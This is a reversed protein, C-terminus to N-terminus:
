EASANPDWVWQAGDVHSAKGHTVDVWAGTPGPPENPGSPSGGGSSGTRIVGGGRTNANVEINAADMKVGASKLQSSSVNGYADNLLKLYNSNLSAANGMVSAASGFLRGAEALMDAVGKMGNGQAAITDSQGKSASLSMNKATLANQETSNATEYLGRAAGLLKDLFASQENIGTQRAKTKASALATALSAAVQKQLALSAGSGASVGKRALQREAQGQANQFAGQVDSAAQAVYRDPSLLKYIRMYEGALGGASGDMNLLSDGVGFLIDARDSLGGGESWLDKSRLGLLDAIPGLKEYITRAEGATSVVQDATDAMKKANANMAGGDKDIAGKGGLVANLGSQASGVAADAAGTAGALINQLSGIATDGWTAVAM